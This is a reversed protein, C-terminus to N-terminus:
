NFAFKNLPIKDVPQQILLCNHLQSSVKLSKAQCLYTPSQCSLFQSNKSFNAEIEIEIKLVELEWTQSLMLRENFTVQRWDSPWYSLILFNAFFNEFILEINMFIWSPMGLLYRKISWLSVVSLMVSRDGCFHEEKM